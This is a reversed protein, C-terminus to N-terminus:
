QQGGESLRRTSLACWDEESPNPLAERLATGCASEVEAAAQNRM